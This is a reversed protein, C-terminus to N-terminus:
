LIDAHLTHHHQHFPIPFVSSLLDTQVKTFALLLLM